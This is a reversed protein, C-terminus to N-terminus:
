RTPKVTERRRDYIAAARETKHGAAKRRDGEFDSVGKAKLDHFTFREAIAGDKKAQRIRKQWATQFGSESIPAGSQSTILHMGRNRGYSRALEIAARLRSGWAITQAKSGKVRDVRLGEPTVDAETLALLEITRLRCLYALEMGAQLHPPCRDYMVQYERDTVYRDRPTEPYKKVPKAPNTKVLDREHAWAFAVKLVALKRNAAVPTASMTDLYRRLTGPTIHSVLVEGFTGDRLKKAKIATIAKEYERRTSTARSRFRDSRRYEDLLWGLTPRGGTQQDVKIREYERWLQGDSDDVHGIRVPSSGKARFYVWQGRLYCYPPLPRGHKRPRGM